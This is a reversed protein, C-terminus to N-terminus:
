QFKQLARVRCQKFNFYAYLVQAILTYLLVSEYWEGVFNTVFHNIAFKDFTTKGQVNLWYSKTIVM